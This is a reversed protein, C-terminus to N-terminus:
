VAAKTLTVILAVVLVTFALVSIGLGVGLTRGLQFHRVEVVDIAEAPLLVVDRSVSPIGGTETRLEGLRLAITDGSVAVITGRAELVQAYARRQEGPGAAVPITRPSRLVIRATAGPAPTLSSPRYGFCGACPAALLVTLARRVFRVAGCRVLILGAAVAWVSRKSVPNVRAPELRCVSERLARVHRLFGSRTQLLM